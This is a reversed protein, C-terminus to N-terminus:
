FFKLKNLQSSHNFIRISQHSINFTFQINYNNSEPRGLENSMKVYAYYTDFVGDFAVLLKPLDGGILWDRRQNRICGRKLIEKSM